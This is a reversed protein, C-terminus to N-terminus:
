VVLDKSTEQPNSAHLQFVFVGLNSALSSDSETQPSEPNRQQFLPYYLGRLLESFELFEAHFSLM